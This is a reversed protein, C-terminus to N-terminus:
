LASPSNVASTRRAALALLVVFLVANGPMQLSFDVLSQLGIALIGTVAGTRIWYDGSAPPVSRMRRRVLRVGAVLAALAPVCILVGGEAMLQLYDNHAQVYHVDPNGTQYILTADGFTNLGTGTLPFRRAIAWADTWVGARNGLTGMDPNAFRDGVKDLGTVGVAVVVMLVATAGVVLRGGIGLKGRALVLGSVAAAALLGILGSRSLTAALGIAMIVGAFGLLTTGTGDASGFWMLRDRWGPRVGHMGRSVRGCFSAFVLPIAMLMWGAFHNRNVFPGFALSSYVPTWFGYIKGNWMAQQILGAISMVVGLAAILMVVRRADERTAARAFGALLLGLAVAAALGIRTASPNISLPHSQALMPYGVLFQRLFTDTSPSITALVTAPLPILQVGIAGAIAACALAAGADDGPRPARVLLVAGLIAAGALLPMYAWPYVAGFALAGWAILAFVALARWRTM